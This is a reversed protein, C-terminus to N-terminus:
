PQLLLFRFPPDLYDTDSIIELGKFAYLIQAVFYHISHISNFGLKNFLKLCRCSLKRVRFQPRMLFWWHGSIFLVYRQESPYGTHNLDDEDGWSLSWRGAIDWWIIFDMPKSTSIILIMVLSGEHSNDTCNTSSRMSIM